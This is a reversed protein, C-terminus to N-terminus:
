PLVGVRVTMAWVLPTGRGTIYQLKKGALASLNDHVWSVAKGAFEPVLAGRVGKFEVAEGGRAAQATSVARLVELRGEKLPM